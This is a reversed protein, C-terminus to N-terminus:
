GSISDRNPLLKSGTGPEQSNEQKDTPKASADRHYCLLIDSPKGERERSVHVSLGHPSVHFFHPPNEDKVYREPLM